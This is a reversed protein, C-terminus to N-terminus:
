VLNTLRKKFDEAFMGFYPLSLFIINKDEEDMKHFDKFKDNFFREIERDIKYRRSTLSNWNLYVGTFTKKRYISVIFGVNDKRLIKVDLFPLIIDQEIEFTFKINKHLNNIFQLVKKMNALDNILIFIDDVYSSWTIVGNMTKVQDVFKEELHNMFVNALTPGLPNEM